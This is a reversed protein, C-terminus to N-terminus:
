AVQLLIKGFNKNAEMHQHAEQAMTLPFTSDIIPKIDRAQLVPLWRQKFRETIARKDDLSRSRMVSGKVQLRKRMLLRLDLEAKHGSMTAVQILRGTSKLLRCNKAFYDGGIFDEIVDVGKNHTLEMIATEFNDTKYNIGAHAGLQLTKEIKETSGATIYVTAGSHKAMQIAATGVGSGGAHILISEGAQLQGLEFVTENATFFVEPIAAAYEYTWDEPIPMAMAADLVCYEAYAGGGVLGFVRDGIKHTAVAAGCAVVEGACELGLIDSDGPPPPYKGKRQLTDARNIAATHVKILLQQETPTPTDIDVLQLVEPGGAQQAIIAKM